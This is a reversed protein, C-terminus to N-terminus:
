PYLTNFTPPLTFNKSFNAPIKPPLFQHRSKEAFPYAGGGMSCLLFLLASCIFSPLFSPIGSCSSCVSRKSFYITFFLFCLLLLASASLLSCFCFCFASPLLLLRCLASCIIALASHNQDSCKNEM